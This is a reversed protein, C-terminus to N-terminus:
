AEFAKVAEPKYQVIQIETVGSNTKKNCGTLGLVTCCALLVTVFRKVGKRM